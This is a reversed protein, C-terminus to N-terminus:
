RRLGRVAGRLSVVLPISLIMGWAGGMVGGATIVLLIVVPHLRTAGSLLRPSLFTGELQQVAFIVVLAWLARLWGNQLAFLVAPVGAIWPGLYPIVEMVGMLIGWLLWGPTGVALLGLATLSGVAASVVLQGRLFGTTERRMEWLARVVRSRHRVPVLLTLATSVRKRDRLLYYAMLPSLLVTSVSSAVGRLGQAAGSVLAGAMRQVQQILDDRLLAVNVGRRVLFDSLMSLQQNGWQVLEPLSASLLRVQTVLTPIVGLVLALVAAGLLLLSLAASLGPSFRRELHRCLPLAAWLLLCAVALQVLVTWLARRFVILITVAAAVGLVLWWGRRKAEVSREM